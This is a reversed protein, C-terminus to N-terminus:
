REELGDRPNFIAMMLSRLHNKVRSKVKKEQAFEKQSKVPKYPGISWAKSGAWPPMAMALVVVARSGLNRAM